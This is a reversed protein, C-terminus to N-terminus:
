NWLEEDETELSEEEEEVAGLKTTNAMLWSPGAYYFWEAKLESAMPELTPKQKAGNTVEVAVYSPVDIWGYLLHSKNFM